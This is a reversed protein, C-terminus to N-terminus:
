RTKSKRLNKKRRSHKHLSEIAEEATSFPGFFQGDQIQQQSEAVHQEVMSQARDNSIPILKAIPVGSKEIVIEEGGEVRVLLRSLHTQAEDANIQMMM